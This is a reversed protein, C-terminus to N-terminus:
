FQYSQKCQYPSNPYVKTEGELPSISQLHYTKHSHMFSQSSCTASRVTVNYKETKLTIPAYDDLKTLLEQSRTPRSAMPMNRIQRDSSNFRSQVALYSHIPDRFFHSSPYIEIDHSYISWSGNSLVTLSLIVKMSGNCDQLKCMKIDAESCHRSWSESPLYLPSEAISSLLDLSQAPNVHTTLSLPLQVKRKLRGHCNKGTSQVM